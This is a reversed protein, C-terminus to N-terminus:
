GWVSATESDFYAIDLPRTSRRRGAARVRRALMRRASDKIASNAPSEPDGHLGIYVHQIQSNDGIADCIHADSDGLSHGLVVLPGEIRAFKDMCYWLYGVRQIQEFKKPASGEAVFLPYQENELGAQILDTLRSGTRIWSHKRLESNALYLHLAGHMYFLGSQNGLRESFVVYPAEPDNDDTRFGDKFPSNNGAHMNVWYVLLDYNTTFVNHFDSIFTLASSKKEDPVLGTHELHSATVAQVLIRKVVELDDLMASTEGEVLEYRNAVWHADELLRMVGEFNNTGLRQFVAQARESLGDAVARDYLSQYRFIPDCAISFGNGLLLHSRGNGIQRRVEQYDLVPM